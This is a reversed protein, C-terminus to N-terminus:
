MNLCKKTKLNDSVLKLKELNKIIPGISIKSSKYNHPNYENYVM